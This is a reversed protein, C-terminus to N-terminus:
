ADTMLDLMMKVKVLPLQNIKEALLNALETAESECQSTDIIIRPHSLKALRRLADAEDWIIYFYGCIQDVLIPSPRGRKGRELASLYAASIQLDRAM